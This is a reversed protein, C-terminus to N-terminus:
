RSKVEGLFHVNCRKCFWEQGETFYGYKIIAGGVVDESSGCKPCGRAKQGLKVSVSM